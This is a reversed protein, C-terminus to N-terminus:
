QDGDRVLTWNEDFLSNLMKGITNADHRPFTLTEHPLVAQSLESTRSCGSSAM